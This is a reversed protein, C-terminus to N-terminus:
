SVRGIRTLPWIRAVVVGVLDNRRGPGLARSDTSTARNDSELWIEDEGIERPAGAVRKVVVEGALRAVVIAGTRASGSRRALLLDGDRLAPLMSHGAVRVTFWGAMQGLDYRRREPLTM